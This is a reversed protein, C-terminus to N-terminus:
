IIVCKIIVIPGTFAKAEGTHNAFLISLNAPWQRSFPLCQQCRHGVTSAQLQHTQDQKEESSTGTKSLSAAQAKQAAAQTNDDQEALNRGKGSDTQQPIESEDYGLYNFTGVILLIFLGVLVSLILIRCSFQRTLLTSICYHFMPVQEASDRAPNSLKIHGLLGTKCALIYKM